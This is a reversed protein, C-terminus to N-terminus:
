LLNQLFSWVAASISTEQLPPVVLDDLKMSNEMRFMWQPTGRSMPVVMSIQRFIPGGIGISEKVIGM